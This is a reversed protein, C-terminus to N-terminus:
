RGFLAPDLRNGGPKRKSEVEARLSDFEELLQARAAEKYHGLIETILDAKGGDRGDSYIRYRATLPHEGTVIANLADKAGLNNYQPLKLDNGALEVYRSYAHPYEELDVVVGGFNVRKEPMSPFFGLRELETDIPEPAYKRTYVPNFIDVLMGGGSRYDVPRGWLDRYLPLDSSHFPSKRQMAEITTQATRMFPDVQRTAVGAVAPVFSAAISQFYGEGHMDPNSIADFIKAVGSMYTKSTVNKAVAFMSSYFAEEIANYSGSGEAITQDANVVSAAIDAAMGITMGVPDLRSYSYWKDGVRISYEQNGQRIWNQREEPRTPGKGTINGSMAADIMSLLLLSGTSARAIALDARAGGAAIDERWSKLLPAMPSREAVRAMINAPTNKFPLILTGIVPVNQVADALKRLVEPPRNTFTNYLAADIAEIKIHDPPNAILEGVRRKVDEARISGEAMEQSAQRHAQAHVEMRYGISKFFEDASALARGPTRVVTDVIDLSRGLTTDSAIQWTESSFAGPFGSDAIDPRAWAGASEGTKATKWAARMADRFGSLVAGAMAAAEGAAVGGETGLADSVAAAVRREAIQQGIVTWNSAANVVHTAPNSLLGNIWVQKFAAATRALASGEVIKELERVMGADSLAAIRKAMDQALAGGGNADLLMELQRTLLAGDSGAPIKWANLARATETRAALVEKQIAYHTALMKRFAVLNGESPASAALQAVESLKAASTVWLQRAAFTQEANLTEGMRRSFLEDWANVQQASLQTQEWSRVGRQADKVPTAYWDAMQQMTRQIDDPGEIRGFNIEITEPATTSSVDKPKVGQTADIGEALKVEAPDTAVRKVLEPADPDGLVRNVDAAKTPAPAVTPDDLRAQARAIRASRLAKLTLVFGDVAAGVGVGELARKLRSEAANDNPNSALFATVPNQLAPVSQVLDSLRAESEDFVTFDAVAGQGMAKAIRGQTTAPALSRFVKLKGAGVFGAVFQSIGKVIKGTNSEAEGIPDPLQPSTATGAKDAGLMRTIPAKSELWNGAQIWLDITEQAADRIGKVVQGPAETVGRFFDTVARGLGSMGPNLSNDDANPENGARRPAGNGFEAELRRIADSGAMEDRRALIESTADDNRRADARGYKAELEQIAVSGAMADRRALVESSADDNGVPARGNGFKAELRAVAPSVQAPPVPRPKPPEAARAAAQEEPTGYQMELARVAPSDLMEARRAAEPNRPTAPFEPM